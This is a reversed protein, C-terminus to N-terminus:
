AVVIVEDLDQGHFERYPATGRPPTPSPSLMLNKRGGHRSRRRPYYHRYHKVRREKGEGGQGEGRRGRDEREGEEKRERRRGRGEREEEGRGREGRKGGEGRERRERTDTFHFTFLSSIILSGSFVRAAKKSSFLYSSILM